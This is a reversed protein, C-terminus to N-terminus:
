PCCRCGKGCQPLSRAARERGQTAAGHLAPASRIWREMADGCGPCAPPLASMSQRVECAQGCRECRFDYIPM